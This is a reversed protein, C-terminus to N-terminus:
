LSMKRRVPRAQRATPSQSHVASGDYPAEFGDARLACAVARRAYESSSVQNRDAAQQVAYAIAESCRFTVRDMFPAPRRRPSPM